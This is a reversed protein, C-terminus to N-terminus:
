ASRRAKLLTELQDLVEVAAAEDRGVTERVFDWVEDFERALTLLTEASMSNAGDIWHGVAKDTRGATRALQKRSVPLSRLVNSLRDSFSQRQEPLFKRANMDSTMSVGM